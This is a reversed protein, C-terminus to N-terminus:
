KAKHWSDPVRSTSWVLNCFKTIWSLATEGQDTAAKWFEPPLDDMGAAKGNRLRKAAARVEDETIPGMRVPLEENIHEVNQM